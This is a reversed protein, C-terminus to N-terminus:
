GEPVAATQEITSLIAAARAREAADWVRSRWIRRERAQLGAEDLWISVAGSTATDLVEAGAHQWRRVVDARPHGFRNGYGASVVVLRAQTAVVFDPRSSGASGHHPVVVVDARLLERSRKVLGQEIVEGIDGTLLAVGHRSAVRLVCSSENGLYPFTSTPHLFEFEVGDWRWRQGAVCATAARMTLGPPTLWRAAPVVARVADAGGAHDADGHSIVIADLHGIGQARLAPVVVREGADFGDRVAPGADYLLQHRATRVLVSLGQGVDLVQLQVEGVAPSGRPPWLLPLWLLGALWKGPVGRPLLLWLAGIVALPLAVWGAEPLWWLAFRSEALRAFLSWSLDFCGASARWLWAGSGPVVAELATGLLALPVVVLTWWPIALLNALPGIASAQGFLMVTLPLLGVTAVWQASLFAKFWHAREPLCWVLWAVGAFSLWFGAVLISLPDWLLVVLAALALCNGMCIQRRWLRAAVVVGIMLVTRVTPLSFGAAAAYGLAGAFAALAAAQPRPFWRALQPLAWWLLGSLWAVCGAVMGVHFGSIAILHTLGSARLVQWDREDLARTDGLALARVYRSTPMGVAMDIRQAMRERWADVGRPAALVQAVAGRVVGTATIRQTLAHREADFGGPNQLGRPARLKASFNWRAGARLERRPGVKTAGFDDYWALQLLRGRLSELQRDDSDVRLLFRTRRAEMDPLGVVAGIVPVTHGELAPPLQRELAWGAHLAAWGAGALLAGICRARGGMVWGAVGSALLLLRLPLPLLVPAWLAAGTGAVFLAAVPKGFPAASGARVSAVCRRWVPSRAELEMWM